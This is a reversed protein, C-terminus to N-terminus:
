AHYTLPPVDTTIFLLQEQEAKYTTYLTGRVLRRAVAFGRGDNVCARHQFHPLM